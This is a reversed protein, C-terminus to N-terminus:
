GRYGSVSKTTGLQRCAVTQRCGVVWSSSAENTVSSEFEGDCTGRKVRQVRRARRRAM